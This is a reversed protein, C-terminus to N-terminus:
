GDKHNPIYLTSDAKHLVEVRQICGEYYHIRVYLGERIPGKRFPANQFCPTNDAAYYSFSVGNVSFSELTPGLTPAPRFDKVVGEVILSKGSVYENQLKAYENWFVMSSVLLFISAATTMMIGAIFFYKKNRFFKIKILLVGIIFL